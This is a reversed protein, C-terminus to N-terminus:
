GGGDGLPIRLSVVFGGTPGPGARLTGGYLAARERMGVLGQGTGDRREDPAPGRGDDAVDIRLEEREYAVVVTAKSARAHRRVNTLAEQVIRYAALDIGAPLAPRHGEVRVEVPLGAAVTTAVLSDLDSLGPSPLLPQAQEDDARLVTLLRRLEGLATRSTTEISALAARAKDPEDDIVVRGTGAQVVIVSMAHAVVDHLERAIRLREDLVARRALEERTRELEEARRREATAQTQAQRQRDGVLWAVGFVLANGVATDVGMSTPVLAIAMALSALATAPVSQRRPRYAAVSYVAAVIAPGLGVPPFGALTYVLGTAIMAGIVGVPWKRRFALASCHVVGLGIGILRDSTRDLVGLGISVSIAAFGAALLLDALPPKWPRADVPRRYAGVRRHADGGRRVGPSTRPRTHRTPETRSRTHEVPVTTSWPGWAQRTFTSRTAIAPAARARLRVAAV